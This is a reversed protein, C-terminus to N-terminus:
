LALRTATEVMHWFFLRGVAECFTLWRGRTTVPWIALACIRVSERDSGDELDPRDELRGFDRKDSSIAFVYVSVRKTRMYSSLLRCVLAEILTRGLLSEM